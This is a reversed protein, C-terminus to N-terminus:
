KINKFEKEFKLLQPNLHLEPGGRSKLNKPPNKYIQTKNFM